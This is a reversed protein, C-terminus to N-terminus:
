IGDVMGEISTVNSGRVTYGLIGLVSSGLTGLVSYGLIGLVSSGDTGIRGLIGTM